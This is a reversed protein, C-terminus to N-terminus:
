VIETDSLDEHVESSAILNRIVPTEHSLGAEIPRQEGALLAAARHVARLISTYGTCRCLNGELADIIEETSPDPSERLLGVTSVVFGPTCFGCQLGHEDAFAEQVPSLGEAPTLGHITEIATGAAQMVLMTCSKVPAGDVLVTCAGCSSTDCGVHVGTKGIARLWEVLLVRPEVEAALHEFDVTITVKV